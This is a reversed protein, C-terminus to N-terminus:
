KTFLHSFLIFYFLLQIKNQDIEKDIESINISNTKKISLFEYRGRGFESKQM